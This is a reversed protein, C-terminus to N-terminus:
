SNELNFNMCSPHAQSKFIESLNETHNQSCGELPQHNPKWKGNDNQESCIICYLNAFINLKFLENM